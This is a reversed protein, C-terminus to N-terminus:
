SIDKLSKRIKEAIAKATLGYEKLLVERNGHPIFECPLGVRIVPRNLAEYIASGFGADLIGEEVSFIYKADACADKILKVELPKVFRANILTGLLGDKELIQLADFSAAVMSGLAIIVFDKGQKLLEPKGLEMRASPLNQAGDFGKPYRIAVSRELGVAFELMMELERCDKPAMIVLNPVSRLFAIDFIGQHTAGDEGVIGARDIALIVPLQQLAM